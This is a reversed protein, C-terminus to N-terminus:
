GKIVALPFLKVMIDVLDKQEEMVTNIDKYAGPAEDLSKRNRIAHIIGKDDMARIEEALDLENIAKKRSLRRGAGHSCSMFSEVNGKSQVIYSHTGQSGPIIGMEGAKASTAGKRHVWVNRHFHNELNAYNHHINIMDGFGVEERAYKSFCNKVIDMMMYMMKQRNSFAYSIAYKMDIIYARGEPSDVPLWALDGPTEQGKKQHFNKATKNYHSCITHGLRRSGSHVMIWLNEDEDAQLEIFHNGSGLTGLQHRALTYINDIFGTREQDPMGSEDAPLKHGQGVGLPISQRVAQLINKLLDRPPIGKYTTQVTCMGCGIDVGVANPIINDKCAIVGGIPMGYGQHTDPMLCVHRFIFPLNAVNRAQALAGEEPEDCWSFVPAKQTKIIKM